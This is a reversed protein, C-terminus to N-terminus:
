DKFVLVRRNGGSKKIKFDYGYHTKIFVDLKNFEKGFKDRNNDDRIKSKLESISVGDPYSIVINNIINYLEDNYSDKVSDSDSDYEIEDNNDLIEDVQHTIKDINSDKLMHKDIYEDIDHYKTCSNIISLSTQNKLGFVEFSKNNEIMKNILPIYDKDCGILIYNEIFQKSYLCEMVDVIIKSDTSNKGALRSIQVEELGYKTVYKDWFVNFDVKKWDGYIRKIIVNNNCEIKSMLNYFKINNIKINDGDIFIATTM